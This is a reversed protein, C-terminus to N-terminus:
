QRLENTILFVLDDLSQEFNDNVVKHHYLKSVMEEDIEKKARELRNARQEDTESKRKLLREELADFPATIYILVSNRIFQAMVQAGSRDLIVILNKRNNLDDIISKPLGYWNNSYNTTHIFFGANQKELFEELRIFHYDIGNTEYSRPLRCTYTVITELTFEMPLTRVLEKVLSSKGSGSPGYLIFIKGNTQYDLSKELM